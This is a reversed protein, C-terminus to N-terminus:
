DLHPNLSAGTKGTVIWLGSRLSDRLVRWWSEPQSDSPIAVPTVVIGRSGFVLCAIAKARRMHYDTTVLYLHRLNKEVFEEVTCTFNTVTDTACFDYDIRKQAIGAERFVKSSYEYVRPYDSVLLALEPNEQAFNAAFPIRRYIDGGLVFIAQPEPVQYLTIAIRSPIISILIM